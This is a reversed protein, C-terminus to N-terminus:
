SVKCPQHKSSSEHKDGNDIMFTSDSFTNVLRVIEPRGDRSRKIEDLLADELDVERVLRHDEKVFADAHEHQM